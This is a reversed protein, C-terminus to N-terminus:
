AKLTELMFEQVQRTRPLPPTSHRTPDLRRSPPNLAPHPTGSQRKDPPPARVYFGRVEGDLSRSLVETDCFRQIDKFAEPVVHLYGVM